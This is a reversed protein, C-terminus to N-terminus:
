TALLYRTHQTVLGTHCSTLVDAGDAVLHASFLKTVFM